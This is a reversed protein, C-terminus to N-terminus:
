VVQNYLLIIERLAFQLIVFPMNLFLRLQVEAPKASVANSNCKLSLAIYVTKKYM